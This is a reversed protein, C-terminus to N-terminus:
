QVVLTVNVSQNQVGPSSATVTITYTGPPTGPQPPPGTSTDGGGGCGTLTLILLLAIGLATFLTLRKRRSGSSLLGACVFVIGPLPLWAAYFLRHKQLSAIPATTTITMVVPNSQNSGPTVSALNFSCQTLAPLGSCASPAFSVAGSFALGAPAVNFNYTASAGATVTQTSTSATLTFDQTITLTVPQTQTFTNTDTGVAKIVFSLTGPTLDSAGISFNATPTVGAGSCSSPVRSNAVLPDTVCSFSVPNSYGNQATLTGGYTVKKGDLASATSNTLTMSFGTSTVNVALNQTKPAPAGLTSASITVTASGVPTAGTTVVTLNVTAPSSATVTPNANDFSCTAGAPLGASCSLNVVANFAGLGSVQVQVPQSSFGATVDVTSPSPTALAFDVVQLLVPADHTVTNPDSGVGHVNFNYTRVASIPSTGITFPVGSTSPTASTPSPTCGPPPDGTCSLAVSNNYGNEAVLTGHFTASQSPFITQPTDSVNIEYDPGAFLVSEWIGRGYTSARLRKSTVSSFLRLATVPVDPLFGSAGPGPAPGVETWSAATSGSSFVGVDTGVYVTSPTTSADVVVANAPANPLNATFDTWSAGANTTKWVHSSPFATTNWGMITVYATNGTADSTDIAISSIPYHQPNISAGGPGNNTVEKFNATGGAANTTVFVRGGAPATSGPTDIPGLGSTGAYIMKSFGSSDAPGGAALARVLNVESGTCTGAGGVEFNNSLATYAGTASTSPGGRWVRCTGVIIDVTGKNVLPDLMYPFYFDGADGGLQTSTVVAGNGFAGTTCSIGQSCHDIELGGPGVDPNSVFWDLPSSPTIANYGGDGANVNQWQTGSTAQSTAPSGNDQTGGLLTKADTPHISFSVFQTMSGLTQNLSDFVNTGDSCSGNLGATLNYSNLTRYIGGDNAFYMLPQQTSSGPPVLMFDVGHEDPHLKAISSCGYVHSLNLWAGSTCTSSSNTLARCKFLNVAGAYLDTVGTGDPVAALDLNYSGQTVGCGATDGCSTLGTEDIQQWSSGGNLSRFIGGDTENGTTARFYVIWVYMENRGPVVAFEARYLPCNSSSPSTPCATTTLGTGPQTALRTWNMGDSSSYIGHYRLAAYFKGATANFVVAPASGPAVTTTGDKVSAYNWTVGADTSVYLGRNAPSGGPLTELGEVIGQTAAAAAAVVLNNNVTSFAIKSFGLGLFSHTGTQDSQIPNSWTNGGDTSRLIGLGYYSDASSNPEGTGVLVVSNAPNTNGPQIAISGVALTPQNDIVPTWTVQNPNPSLPGANTSKWVGGYAGGVYVTNGSSDAPDVVVSTARGSVWNYDQFGMGGSADSALPAPGLATWGASSSSALPAGAAPVAGAKIASARQARLQMKQQHARYRLAAASQGRLARGRMFWQERLRPHDSDQEKIPEVLSTM